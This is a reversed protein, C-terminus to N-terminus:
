IFSTLSKCFELIKINKHKKMSRVSGV